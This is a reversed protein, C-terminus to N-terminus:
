DARRVPVPRRHARARRLEERIPASRRLERRLYGILLVTGIAFTIRIM